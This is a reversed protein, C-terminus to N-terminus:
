KISGYSSGGSLAFVKVSKGGYGGHSGGSGHSGGGGNSGYGGQSGYSGGNHGGGNHGGSQKIEIGAFSLNAGSAKKKGNAKYGNTSGAAAGHGAVVAFSQGYASAGNYGFGRVALGADDSIVNLGSLGMASLTESSPRGGAAFLPTAVAFAALVLALHRVKM